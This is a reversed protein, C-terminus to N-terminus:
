VAPARLNQGAERASYMALATDLKDLLGTDAEPFGFEGMVVSPKTKGHFDSGGTVVLGYRKAIELYFDSKERNHYTSYCEIGDIGLEIIYELLEEKGSLNQGPHALVAVGGAEKIIELAKQMSIYSIPIHAEKGQSCFDWYFNVYPNDSRSGGPLYPQLLSNSAAEPKGLVIEAILEGTVFCGHVARSMAEKENVPIGLNRLAAIRERAANFEQRSIDMNVVFFAPHDPNIGYGLVHFDSGLFTCDLEIGPIVRIGAAYGAHVAEKVGNISNHDTVAIASLGRSKAMAVIEGPSLNGDASYSTHIHLDFLGM